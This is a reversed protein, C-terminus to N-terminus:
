PSFNSIIWNHFDRLFKDVGSSMNFRFIELNRFFADAHIKMDVISLAQLSIFKLSLLRNFEPASKESGFELDVLTTRNEKLICRV